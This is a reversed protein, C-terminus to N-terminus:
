LPEETLLHEALALDAPTTIKVNRSEGRVAAVPIGAAGLLGVEDTAKLAASGGERYARRLLDARAAQPTQTRVITSRDLTQVFLAPREKTAGEVRHLSDSVRAVPAAAGHRRASALVRRVVGASVLPRAADHVLVIEVADPLAELGALVSAARTEGGAVLRARPLLRHIRPQDEPRAVVVLAMREVAVLFPALSRVIVPKGALPRLVKSLPGGFRRSSGAAVLVLGDM